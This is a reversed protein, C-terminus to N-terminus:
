RAKRAELSEFRPVLLGSARLPRSGELNIEETTKSLIM